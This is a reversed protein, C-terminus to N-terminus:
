PGQKQHKVMVAVIRDCLGKEFQNLDEMVRIMNGEIERLRNAHEEFVRDGQSLRQDIVRGIADMKQTLNKFCQEQMGACHAKLDELTVFGNKAKPLATRQKIYSKLAWLGIGGLFATLFLKLAGDIISM